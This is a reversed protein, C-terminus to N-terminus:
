TLAKGYILKYSRKLGEVNSSYKLQTIAAVPTTWEFNQHEKPDLVPNPQNEVLLAFVREKTVGFQSTFEFEYGVDKPPSQFQFGTEEQTERCAAEFWGEGSEVSGTVPQWHSGRAVNTKLLLCKPDSLDASFIWCQVKRNRM